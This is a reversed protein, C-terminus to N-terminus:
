SQAYMEEIQKKYYKQVFARKIKMTPTLIGNTASDFPTAEIHIQEVIEYGHLKAERSTKIIEQHIAKIVKDNNVLQELSIKQQEDMSNKLISTAFPIFTEPDPVVVAVLHSKYSDGYVFAQMIYQNTCIVNEVKEPAVYKGQSLKLINKLRDIISISGDANFQAIDGTALWGDGVLTEDTKEKDKLYGSFVLPSRVHLEGRPYPKDTSLYDMSPVDVLKVETTLLPAGVNGTTPDDIKQLSILSSTETMGTGNAIPSILAVRLVELVNPMIPAGGSLIVEVRKSLIAKTKNFLIRDWLAHQYGGGSRLVAIKDSFAKRSIMGKLGPANITAAIIKDYIRNLVRPVSCIVTPQLAQCDIILRSVDGTFYGITGQVMTAANEAQRGFAHALPLYSFYVFPNPRRDVQHFAKAVATYQEHTSLAGKPTGTTGSTYCITYLDSPKPPFHPIPNNEGIKELEGLDYLEINKEQAWKKLISAPSIGTAPLSHSSSALEKKKHDLQDLPDLSVIARINPIKDAARLLNAVKDLSCFIMPTESHNIIYEMESPACTDFLSVTCLGQSLVAYETMKWEPRNIAYICVPWDRKLNTEAPHTKKYLWIIGSGINSIRTATEKYTYFKYEGYSNSEVDFPRYGLYPTDPALKVSNWFMDYVTKVEPYYEVDPPNRDQLCRIVYSEGEVKPGPVIYSKQNVHTM